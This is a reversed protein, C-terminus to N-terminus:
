REELAILDVKLASSAGKILPEFPTATFGEDEGGPEQLLRVPFLDDVNFLEGPTVAAANYPPLMNAMQHEFSSEERSEGDQALAQSHCGPSCSCRPNGESQLKRSAVECHSSGGQSGRVDWELSM